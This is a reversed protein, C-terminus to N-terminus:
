ELHIIGQRLAAIAAQTRDKVGLKAFIGQLHTKATEETISLAASIEKNSKGQVVLRLVDTERGTLGNRNMREALRAAVVPPIWRQGEYVARIAELYQEKGMDKLLYARAGSQLARYIDEDGDFTTLVVIRATPFSKMIQATAELGSMKPMQLDMLIVDPLLTRAMELVQAGDEAQGIVSLDPQRDIIAALGERLAPHDDAILVRIKKAAKM